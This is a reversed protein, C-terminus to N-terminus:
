KKEEGAGGALLADLEKRLEEEPKFGGIRKAEKGDRFILVTPLSEVGHAKQLEPLKVTDVGVFAVKGQYDGSLKNVVPKLKQCWSCWDAHFDVLVLGKAETVLKRFDAADKAEPFILKVAAPEEPVKRTGALHEEVIKRLEEEPRAGGVVEVKQGDKFVVTSPATRLGLKVVTARNAGAEAAYMAAKGKFDKALKDFVPAFQRCNAGRQTYFDVLVLGKSETVKKRFDEEGTLEAANEFKPADAVVTGPAPPTFTKGGEAWWKEWKAQDDAFDKGTLRELASRARKRVERDEDALASILGPVAAKSRAVDLQVVAAQRVRAEKDKLAGAVDPLYKEKGYRGLARVARARDDAKEAGLQAKFLELAEESGLGALAYAAHYRVEPDQDGKMAKALAEKAAADGIEGLARAAAARVGADKDAMAERIAAAGLKDQLLGIATIALRRVDADGGGKVVEILAPTALDGMEKLGEWAEQREEAVESTWRKLLRKVKVVSENSAKGGGEDETGAKPPTEKGPAPDTKAPV